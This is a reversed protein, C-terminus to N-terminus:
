NMQTVPGLVLLFNILNNMLPWIDNQFLPMYILFCIVLNQASTALLPLYYRHHNLFEHAIDQSFLLIYLAIILVMHNEVRSQPQIGSNDGLQISIVFEELVNKPITTPANIPAI